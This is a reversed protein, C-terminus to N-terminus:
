IRGSRLPQYITGNILFNHKPISRALSSLENYYAILDTEKSVNTPSYCIIAASRNGIFSAVMMRRQIKDISKRSKLTWPGILMGVGAITANVSNEQSASVFM